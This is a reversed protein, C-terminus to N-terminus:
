LEMQPRLEGHYMKDLLTKSSPRRLLGKNNGVGTGLCVPCVLKGRGYCNPCETFEYAGDSRKRSLARWKGTGGCMDCVVSGAGNCNLCVDEPKTEEVNEEMAVSRDARNSATILAVCAACLSRRGLTDKEKGSPGSTTKAMAKSAHKEQACVKTYPVVSRQSAMATSSIAFSSAIRGRQKDKCVPRCPKYWSKESGGPVTQGRVDLFPAAVVHDKASKSREIWPIRRASARAGAVVHHSHPEYTSSGVDDLFSSSIRISAAHLPFNIRDFDLPVSRSGLDDRIRNEDTDLSCIIWM